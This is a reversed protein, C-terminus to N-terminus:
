VGPSLAVFTYSFWRGRGMLLAQFGFSWLVTWLALAFAHAAAIVWCATALRRLWAPNSLDLSDGQKLSLWVSLGCEPCHRADPLKRLSYGCRLCPKERAKPDNVIRTAM